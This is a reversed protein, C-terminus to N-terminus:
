INKNHNAGGGSLVNIIRREWGLDGEEECLGWKTTTTAYICLCIYNIILKKMKKNINQKSNVIESCWNETAM